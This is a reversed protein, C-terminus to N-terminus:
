PHSAKGFRSDRLSEKILRLKDRFDPGRRLTYGTILVDILVLQAIRSAMPMYVDTDEPVQTSLVMECEDALPSPFATIGLVKAKTQRAIAAIECLAKTRGTHSIFVIVDGPGSNIAAMRQMLVDDSFMVPTDFRLFKNQADHAVSASAGLGFFSIKKAQSLAEIAQELTEIDIHKRTVNLAAMTSEFIKGTFDEISDDQEVHRNVFPTGKVLSQALQLKFDPYGKAGLTRCFRNVTPESVDALQALTAISKHIAGHPDALIVDAVKRESKSLSAVESHLKELLNM